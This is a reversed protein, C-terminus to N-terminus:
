EWEKERGYDDNYMCNHRQGCLNQCYYNNKGCDDPPDWETIQSIKNATAEAWTLAESYENEDFPIAIWNKDKFLNWRLEDVHGYEEIVAKSYLYLQRKFELFHAADTKSISGNKLIKLSASKHDLVTIKGTEKDRLLLDIFGVMQINGVTFDVRKEVGLVEYNDLILDINDLYDLGKYYYDEKIDKYKNAPADESVYDCFHEEYYQSLEYVPIEGNAYKELIEHIFSGYQSFFNDESPEDCLYHLYWEYLCTYNLRSFSWTMSDFDQM